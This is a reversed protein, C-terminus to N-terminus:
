DPGSAAVDKKVMAKVHDGLSVLCVTRWVGLAVRPTVGRFLGRIGNEAYIYKATSLITPSRVKPASSGPVAAGAAAASASLTAAGGAVGNIAPAAAVSASPSSASLSQMEVRIVELPHNWCGLAGGIASATVKEMPTLPEGPKKHGLEKITQEAARAIGIRSAWNTAQRLAVANVGKNIGRIGDKKYIEMFLGFTSPVATAGPAAGKAVKALTKNRTVEATKMRTCVGMALYGQAAGGIAGGLLGAAGRSMGSHHVAFDEVYSSTFLLVAGATSSEIWAWPILGQYFGKFGGRGITKSIATRLSDQRNAAMHTKLVEFPQGLTTVEFLSVASGIVLNMPELQATKPAM